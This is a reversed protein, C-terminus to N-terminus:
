VFLDILQFHVVLITEIINFANFRRYLRSILSTFENSFQKLLKSTIKLLIRVSWQFDKFDRNLCNFVMTNMPIACLLFVDTYGRVSMPVNINWDQGKTLWFTIVDGSEPDIVPLFLLIEEMKLDLVSEKRM